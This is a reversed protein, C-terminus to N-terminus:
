QDVEMNKKVDKAQSVEKIKTQYYASKSRRM